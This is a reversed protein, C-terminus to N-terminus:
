DLFHVTNKMESMRDSSLALAIKRSPLTNLPQTQTLELSSCVVKCVRSPM